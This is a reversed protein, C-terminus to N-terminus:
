GMLWFCCISMNNMVSLQGENLLKLYSSYKEKDSIFSIYEILQSYSHKVELQSFLLDSEVRESEYKNKIFNFRGIDALLAFLLFNGKSSFSSDIRDIEYELLLLTDKASNAIDRILDVQAQSFIPAESSSYIDVIQVIDPVRTSYLVFLKDVEDLPYVFESELSFCDKWDLDVM